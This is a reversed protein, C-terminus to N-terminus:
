LSRGLKHGAFDQARLANLPDHVLCGVVNFGKNPYERITNHTIDLEPNDVFCCRIADVSLALSKVCYEASGEASCSQVVNCIFPLTPRTGERKRCIGFHTADDCVEHATGKTFKEKIKPDEDMSGLGREIWFNQRM